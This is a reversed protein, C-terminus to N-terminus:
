QGIAEFRERAKNSVRFDDIYGHFNLDLYWATHDEREAVWWPRCGLFLQDGTCAYPPGVATGEAEPEGNVYLRPKIDAGWSFAVHSWQGDPLPAKSALTETADKRVLQAVVTSDGGMSLGLKTNGVSGVGCITAHARQMGTPKVWCEITGEPPLTLGLRLGTREKDPSSFWAALNRDGQGPFAGEGYAENAMWGEVPENFDMLLVTQSDSQVPVRVKGQTVADPRPSLLRVAKWIGGYAADDYVSVAILNEEGYRLHETIDVSFAEDWGKGGEGLIHSGAQKGNVYVRADGDVAGFFLHVPRGEFQAPVTVQTRYWALGDYGPHGANEWWVGIPLMLWHSDDFDPSFWRAQVGEQRPDTQFRWRDPVPAVPDSVSMIRAFDKVTEALKAVRASLHGGPESDLAAFVYRGEDVARLWRHLEAAAQAAASHDPKDGELRVAELKRALVAKYTDKAPHLDGMWTLLERGVALAEEFQGSGELADLRHAMQAFRVGKRVREIRARVVDTDALETAQSLLELARETVAPTFLPEIYAGGSQVVMGSEAVAQEFHLHYRHMPEAAPGFFNRCYDELLEDEDESPDWLMRGALWYNFGQSGWHEPGLLYSGELGLKGYYRINAAIVGRIPMPGFWMYGSWYEYTSMHTLLRRYGELVGRLRLNQPSKGTEIPESYNSFATYTCVRGHLNPPLAEVGPPVETHDAYIYWGLVAEPNEQAVKRAVKTNFDVIRPTMSVANYPTRLDPIDLARCADCECWGQGDNAEIGLVELQPNRKYTDLVFDAFRDVLGEANTCLQGTPVREGGILPFWEPHETFFRDPPAIYHYMHSLWEYWVGGWEPGGWANGCFRNRVAWQGQFGARYAFPPKHRYDTDPVTITPTRPVVEGIPSPDYWRVGLRHLLEYVGYLTGRDRVWEKGSGDVIPARRGGVVMLGGGTTTRIVCEEVDLSALLEAPVDRTAGITVVAGEPREAEALMPLLAGSMKEVYTQLERAAFSESELPTDPIVITAVAAGERVLTVDAVSPLPALCLAAIIWRLCTRTM